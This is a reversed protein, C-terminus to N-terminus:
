EAPYDLTIAIDPPQGGNDVGDDGISWIVCMNEDVVEYRMPEGDFPDEPVAPLVDRVVEELDQPLRGLKRRNLEVAIAIQAASNYARCQAITTRIESFEPMLLTAGFLKSLGATRLWRQNSAERDRLVPFAEYWPRRSMEIALQFADLINLLEVDRGDLTVWFQSKDRFLALYVVREAQLSRALSGEYNATQLADLLKRMSAESMAARPLLDALIDVTSQVEFRRSLHSECLPEYARIDTVHILGLLAQGAREFDGVDVSLCADWGLACYATGLEDGRPERWKTRREHRELCTTYDIERRVYGPQMALARLRDLEPAFPALAHWAVNGAGDDRSEFMPLGLRLQGESGWAEACLQNWEASLDATGAPVQYFEDLDAMTTPEGAQRLEQIREDVTGPARTTIRFSWVTFCAVGMLVCCGAIGYLWAWVRRRKWATRGFGVWTTPIAVLLLYPLWLQLQVLLSGLFEFTSDGLDFHRPFGIPNGHKFPFLSGASDYWPRSDAQAYGLSVYFLAVMPVVLALVYLCIAAHFCDDAYKGKRGRLTIVLLLADGLLAFVLLFWCDKCLFRAVGVPSLHFDLKWRDPGADIAYYVMVVVLLLAHAITFWTLVRWILSRRGDVMM